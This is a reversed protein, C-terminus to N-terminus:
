SAVILVKQRACAATRHRYAAQYDPNQYLDLFSQLNPYAGVAVFDWDENEGLFTGAFPAALLFSGGARTMAPMSVASYRGFAVQGSVTDAPEEYIGQDRMKFFNVLTLPQQPNRSLIAQWQAATPASGDQGDGYICTFDNIITNVNM